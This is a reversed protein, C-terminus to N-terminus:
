VYNTYYSSSELDDDSSSDADNSNNLQRSCIEHRKKNIKREKARRNQFWIKIQRESLGLTSSLAAKRPISIYKSVTFENELEYRQRDTYVIRYKDRTRTKGNAPNKPPVPALQSKFWNSSQESCKTYSSDSPEEKSISLPHELHHASEYYSPPSYSSEFKIPLAPAPTPWQSQDYLNNNPYSYHRYGSPSQYETPSLWNSNENLPYLHQHIHHHHHTASITTTTSNIQSLHVPSNSVIRELTQNTTSSSPTPIHDTTLSAPEALINHTTTTNTPWYNYDFAELKSATTYDSYPVFTNYPTEYVRPNSEHDISIMPPYNTNM